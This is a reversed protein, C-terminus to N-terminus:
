EGGDGERAVRLATRAQAFADRAARFKEMDKDTASGEHVKDLLENYKVELKKVEVEANLQDLEEQATM